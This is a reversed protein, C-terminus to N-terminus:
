IVIEAQRLAAIKDISYGLLGSLVEETNAGLSPAARLVRCPTASMTWPVGSERLTGGEPHDVEVVFGRESIHHDEALDKNNLTPFAAVGHSQLLETTEWRDRQATWQSIIRDVEEEHHKRM